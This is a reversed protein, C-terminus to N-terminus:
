RSPEFPSTAAGDGERKGVWRSRPALAVNLPKKLASFSGTPMPLEPRGTELANDLVPAGDAYAYLRQEALSVLIVKGTSLTAPPVRPKTPMPPLQLSPSPFSYLWHLSLFAFGSYFVERVPLRHLPEPHSATTPAEAMAM